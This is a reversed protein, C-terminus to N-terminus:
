LRSRRQGPRRWVVSGDTNAPADRRRGGWAPCGNLNALHRCGRQRAAERLRSRHFSFTVGVLQPRAFLQELTTSGAGLQGWVIWYHRWRPISVHRARGCCAARPTWWCCIAAWRSDPWASARRARSDDTTWRASGCGAEMGRAQPAAPVSGKRAAQLDSLRGQKRCWALRTALSTFRGEEPLSVQGAALPNLDIYACTALLAEEGHIAISKYRGAWFPGQVGDQREGAAGATGQPVEHVLGSSWDGGFNTSLNATASEAPDVEEAMQLAVQATQSGSRPASPAQGM